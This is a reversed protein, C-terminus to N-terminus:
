VTEGLEERTDEIEARIQEPENPNAEGGEREAM